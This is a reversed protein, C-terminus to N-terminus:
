CFFPYILLPLLLDLLRHVHGPSSTRHPKRGTFGRAAGAPARGSDAAAGPTHSSAALPKPLLRDAAPGVEVIKEKINRGDHEHRSGFDIKESNGGTTGISFGGPSSQSHQGFQFMGPSASTASAFQTAPTSFLTPTSPSSSPLGFPSAASLAFPNKDGTMQGGNMQDTGTSLGVTPSPTGCLPTTPSANPITPTVSTFSFVPSTTSSFPSTAPSGFPPANTSTLSNGFIPSASFATSHGFASSTDLSSSSAPTASTTGSGVAFSFVPSSGPASSGFAFSPSSGPNVKESSLLNSNSTSTQASLSNSFQSGSLLTSQSSVANSKGQGAFPSTSGFQPSFSFPASSSAAKSKDQGALSSESSSQSTFQFPVSGSTTISSSQSTAGAFIMSSPSSSGGALSSVTSFPATIAPEQIGSSQASSTSTQFGPQFSFKPFSPTSSGANTSCVSKTSGNSPFVAASASKTTDALGNSLTTPKSSIVNFVPNSTFSVIQGSSQSIPPKDTNSKTDRQNSVSAEESVPKFVRPISEVSTVPASSSASLQQKEVSLVPPSALTPTPPAQSHGTLAAPVPFSFGNSSALIKNRDIESSLVLNSPAHSRLPLTPPKEKNIIGSSMDNNEPIPSQKRETKDNGQNLSLKTSGRCNDMELWNKPMLKASKDSTADVTNSDKAASTFKAACNSNNNPLSEKVRSSSPKLLSGQASVETKQSIPDEVDLIDVHKQRTALTGEKQSPVITDLQKLIKAAMQISQAPAQGFSSDNARDHVGSRTIDGVKDLCRRKQSQVSHELGEDLKSAHSGSYGRHGPRTQLLPSVRNYRQHMKRIPGVSASENNLAASKRKLVQRGFTHLSSPAQYPSVTGFLDRSSVASKFYPSSSMKYIASRNPTTYNSGLRDSTTPAHIRASALLSLTPPRTIQTTNAEISKSLVSPDHLRLRLPSGKSSRSGMYAKALEAPSAVQDNAVTGTGEEEEEPIDDELPPPPPSPPTDLTEAQSPGEELLEPLSPPEGLHEREREQQPPAPLQPPPPPKRFVSPLLLSAGSAVLRSFWGGGGGGLAPAPAPAPRAYPSAAAARSPPRRRIKGGAGSGGDYAGRSAM